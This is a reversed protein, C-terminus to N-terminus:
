KATGKAERHESAHLTHLVRHLVPAFVYGLISAFTLGSFLAYCGAFIKGAHTNLPNVPGMGSLIMSANVFSDDWSMKETIHYGIMGIGLGAALVFLSLFMRRAIRCVFKALPLVPQTLHEYHQM